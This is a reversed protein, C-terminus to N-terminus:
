LVAVGQSEHWSGQVLVDARLYAELVRDHPRFGTFTVVDDVRLAQALEAGRGGLTDEGIWLLRIGAPLEARARSIAGLVIEPAKGRNVSAVVLCRLPGDDAEPGSDLPRSTDLDRREAGLPLWRADPRRRRVPGLAAESGATVVAARALA